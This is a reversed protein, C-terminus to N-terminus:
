LFKDLRVTSVSLFLKLQQKIEKYKEMLFIMTLQWSWDFTDIENKTWGQTKYINNRQKWPFIESNILLKKINLQITRLKSYETQQVFIQKFSRIM